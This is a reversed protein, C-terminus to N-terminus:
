RREARTNNNGCTNIYITPMNLSLPVGYSASTSYVRIRRKAIRRIVGGYLSTVCRMGARSISGTYPERNIIGIAIGASTGRTRRFVAAFGGGVVRLYRIGSSHCRYLVGTGRTVAGISANNDMANIGCAAASSRGGPMRVGCVRAVVGSLTGVTGTGKFSVFSRNNGATIRIRCEYSNIYAGRMCGCVGSFSIIRGIHKACTGVITEVNGLGNLNRRNSGYIFLVNDGPIFNRRGLFGTTLLLTAIYTASSNMNPSCVGKSGRFFPVPRASPFIASARTTFIALSSNDNLRYVTGGTSSVCTSSFKLGGFCKLYFRTEGRRGLSPTPVSYLRGLLSCCGSAGRGVFTGVGNRSFVVGRGLTRPEMTAFSMTALNSVEIFLWGGRLLGWSM